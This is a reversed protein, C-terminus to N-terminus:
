PEYWIPLTWARERITDPVGLESCDLGQARCLDDAPGRAVDVVRERAEGGKCPAAAVLWPALAICSALRRM